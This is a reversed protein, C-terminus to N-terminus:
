IPPIPWSATVIGCFVTNQSITIVGRTKKVRKVKKRPTIKHTILVRKGAAFAIVYKYINKITSKIERAYVKAFIASIFAYLNYLPVVLLAKNTHSSLYLSM